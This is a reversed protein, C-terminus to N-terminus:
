KITISYLNPSSTAGLNTLILLKSTNTYPFVNPAAYGGSFIVQKNTGDYDLITIKGDEALVLNNSNHLWFLRRNTWNQTGDDILFNRDEKIDYVYTRDVKIDREEKQTSSGPIPKLLGSSLNASASATYLIKTEDPSFSVNSTKRQLFDKLEEPLNRELNLLKDNNEKKWDALITEKKSAINVRQEQSAFIGTNLLFVGKSTTLMIEQGNPSFEWTAGTLDGDTIKKPDKNFGLPFNLTDIIWLGSGDAYAIKILDSSLIPSVSGNLTIPSLSPVAKFLSVDAQTVTEKDITLRKYWSIFGEKKIEVDYSGPALSFNSDSAGKLDGNIYIQAGSPNTKIVLIGKPLLKFTNIDLRYGKAYLITSYGLFGVVLFTLILLFVRIKTM